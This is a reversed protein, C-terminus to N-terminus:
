FEVQVRSLLSNVSHHGPRPSRQTDAFFSYVYEVSVRTWPNLYWNVGIRGADYRNRKLAGPRRDAANDLIFYEYRAALEWSGWGDTNGIPNLFVHAPRNPRNFVKKEGSLLWTGGVYGGFTELDDLDEGNQGLRRREESTYIYEGTVSYPGYFWAAHGGVRLREGRVNVPDFFQFGTPTVGAISQSKPQKGYTVAGGATFGELLANPSQVFPALVFRAALDKASNNDQRNQGAGNLVALQYSLLGDGLRGHLMLGIDRSPSVTSLTVASREVLDTYRKSLLAEYSFPVKYQGVQVNARRDYNINLSADRLGASSTFDNEVKYQFYKYLAGELYLRARDIFFTDNQITDEQQYLAHLSARGGVRLSFNGDASRLLFGDEYGATFPPKKNAEQELRTVRETLDPSVLPPAAPAATVPSPDQLQAIDKENLIGKARLLAVLAQQESAAGGKGEDRVQLAESPSIVGKAVLIDILTDARAGAQSGGLFVALLIVGSTRM